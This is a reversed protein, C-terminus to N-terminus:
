YGPHRYGKRAEIIRKQIRLAKQKSVKEDLHDDLLRMAVLFLFGLIIFAIM